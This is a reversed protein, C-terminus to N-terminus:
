DFDRQCALVRPPVFQSKLLIGFHNKPADSGDDYAKHTCCRTDATRAIYNGVTLHRKPRKLLRLAAHPLPWSSRSFGGPSKYNRRPFSSTKFIDSVYLQARFGARNNIEVFTWTHNPFNFERSTRAVGDIIFLHSIVRARRHIDRANKHPYMLFMSYRFLRLFIASFSFGRRHLSAYTLAKIM